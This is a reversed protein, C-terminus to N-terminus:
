GSGRRKRRKRTHDAITEEELDKKDIIKEETAQLLTIDKPPLM